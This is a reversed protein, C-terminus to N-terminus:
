FVRMVHIAGEIGAEVGGSIQTTGCATKAEPGAVRLLCKVMMRRWTEGVRVPRIRPQKDLAILRGSMLSIYADWSHQGNGMWKVLDGVILRLEASAAGFRSKISYYLIQDQPHASQMWALLPSYTM